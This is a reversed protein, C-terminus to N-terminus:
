MRGAGPHQLLTEGKLAKDQDDLGFKSVVQDIAKKLSDDDFRSGWIFTKINNVISIFVTPTWSIDFGWIKPSFVQKAILDYQDIAESATMRLRFLMIGIIGGTSTGSALEFYDAPYCEEQLGRRKQLEKMIVQLMVLSAVGRVGGGDLALLRKGNPHAEKPPSVM